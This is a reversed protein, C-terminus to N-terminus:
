RSRSFRGARPHKAQPRDSFVADLEIFTQHALANATLAIVDVAPMPVRSMFREATQSIVVDAEVQTVYGPDWGFPAWVFHTERFVQALFWSTGHANEAGFGYSDGFLVVCRQDPASPTHFVRRTGIHGGTRQIQSWNDEVLETAGLSLPSHVIELIRPTFRSGLDGSSVYSQVPPLADPSVVKSGVALMLGEHLVRNGHLTLHTDTRLSVAADANAARLEALPYHISADTAELLLEIPRPGSTVLPEPYREANIAVNEPVVLFAIACGLDSAETQRRELLHCWAPLWDPPMQLQGTYQPVYQNSGGRLFIQGEHGVIAVDDASHTGAPHTWRDLDPHWLNAVLSNPEVKANAAPVRTAYEASSLVVDLFAAVTPSTSLHYKIDSTSATRDLLADYLIQVFEATLPAERHADPTANM